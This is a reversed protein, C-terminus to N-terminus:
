PDFVQWASEPEVYSKFEPAPNELQSLFIAYADIIHDNQKHIYQPWVDTVAKLVM